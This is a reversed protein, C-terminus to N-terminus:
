GTVIMEEYMSLADMTRFRAFRKIGTLEIAAYREERHSARRWISLVAQRWADATPFDVGTFVSGCVLRMRPSSVGHYPMASKMYAQAGIARGSDGAAALERRLTALLNPRMLRGEGRGEGAPLPPLCVKVEAGGSSPSQRCPSPPM